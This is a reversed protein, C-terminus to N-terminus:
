FIHPCIKIKFNSVLFGFINAVMFWQKDNIVVYYIVKTIMKM